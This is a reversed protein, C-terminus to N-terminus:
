THSHTHNELMAIALGTAFGAWFVNMPRRLMERWQGRHCSCPKNLRAYVAEADRMSPQRIAGGESVMADAELETSRRYNTIFDSRM